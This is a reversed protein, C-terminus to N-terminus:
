VIIVVERSATSSSLSLPLKCKQIITAVMQFGYKRRIKGHFKTHITPTTELEFIFLVYQTKKNKNTLINLM